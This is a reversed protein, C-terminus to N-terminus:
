DLANHINRITTSSAAMMADVSIEDQDITQDSIFVEAKNSISDRVGVMPEKPPLGM